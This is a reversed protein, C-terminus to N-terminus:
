CDMSTKCWPRTARAAGGKEIADAAKASRRDGRLSFLAEGFQPATPALELTRELDVISVGGPWRGDASALRTQLRINNPALTEAKQFAKM